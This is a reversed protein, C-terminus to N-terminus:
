VKIIITKGRKAKKPVKKPQEQGFVNGFPSTGGFSDKKLNDPKFPSNGGFGEVLPSKFGTQVRKGGPSGGGFNPFKGTLRQMRIKRNEEKLKRLKEREDMEARLSANKIEYEALQRKRESAVAERRAEAYSLAKAKTRQIFDSISM